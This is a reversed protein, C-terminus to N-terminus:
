GRGRELNMLPVGCPRRTSVTAKRVPV